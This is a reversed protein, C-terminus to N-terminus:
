LIYFPKYLLKLILNLHYVVKKVSIEKLLFLGAWFKITLVIGDDFWKSVQLKL